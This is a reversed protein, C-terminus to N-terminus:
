ASRRNTCRGDRDLPALVREAAEIELRDIIRDGNTDLADAIPHPPPRMRGVNAPVFPEYENQELRDNGNKDMQLLSRSARKIEEQNLTRDSDLDLALDLPHQPHNFIQDGGGFPQASPEDTSTILLIALFLPQSVTKM